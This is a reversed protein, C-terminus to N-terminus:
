KDSRERSRKGAQSATGPIRGPGQNDRTIYVKMEEGELNSPITFVQSRVHGERVYELTETDFHLHMKYEKLFNCGLILDNSLQPSIL